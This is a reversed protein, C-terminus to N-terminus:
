NRGILSLLKKPGFSAFLFVVVILALVPIVVNLPLEEDTSTASEEEVPDLIPVVPGGRMKLSIFVGSVPMGYRDDLGGVPQFVYQEGSAAAGITPTTGLSAGVYKSYIFEGTEANLSYFRGDNSGFIIMNGTAILGGRHPGELDYKWDISGDSADIAYVTSNIPMEAVRDMLPNPIIGSANRRVQLKYPLKTMDKAGFSDFDNESDLDPIMYDCYNTSIYYIRDYAFAIAGGTGGTIGPCQWYPDESVFKQDFDVQPNISDDVNLFKLDPPLFSWIIEGDAADLALLRGDDCVKFLVKREDINGLVTNWNCGHGYLDHPSAQYYWILDGTNIDLALISSSFLNPGPRNAANFNPAPSSTGVYVIGAEEDIAWQGTAIGVGVNKAAGWDDPTPDVNGLGKYKMAWDKEGGAPPMLFFRWLLEGTDVNYGAVFGRGSDAKGSVTTGTVLIRTNPDVVPSSFLQGGYYGENGEINDCMQGRTLEGRFDPAGTLYELFVMGCDATPFILYEDFITLEELVGPRHPKISPYDIIIDTMNMPYTYYWLPQGTQVNHVFVANFSTVMYILGNYVLPRARMGPYLEIGPVEPPIIFANTWEDALGNITDSTIQNQPSFNTQKIDYNSSVWAFGRDDDSQAVVYSTSLSAIILLFLIIVPTYKNLFNLSYSLEFLNTIFM